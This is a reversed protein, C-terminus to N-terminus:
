GLVCRELRRSGSSAIWVVSREWGRREKSRTREEGRREEGLGKAAGGIEKGEKRAEM